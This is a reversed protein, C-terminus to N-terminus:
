APLERAPSVALPREPCASPILAPVSEALFPDGVPILPARSLAVLFVLAFLGAAGVAMGIEWPAGTLPAGGARPLIQLYLDLWHGALIVLSVAALVGIRRRAASSMLVILPLGWNLFVNLYFLVKWDGQLRRTFWVAEEPNNVYWILM